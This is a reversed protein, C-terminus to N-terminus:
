KGSLKNLLDTVKKVGQASNYGSVGGVVKNNADLVLTYPFAKVNFKDLLPAGSIVITSPHASLSNVFSAVQEDSVDKSAKPITHVAIFSVQPYQKELKALEPMEERCPKCEVWFFNIVKVKGTQKSLVYFDDQMTFGRFDPSLAGVAPGEAWVVQSAAASVALSLVIYSLWKNIM